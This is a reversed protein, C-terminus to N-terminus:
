KNKPFLRLVVWALATSVVALIYMGSGTALGIAAVVWISAATTIGQVTVGERLIAGAGIFGVGTVIQAAIRSPDTSGAFGLASAVTFIAAGLGILALTRMGAPKGATEREYGIAAGFLTALALRVAVEVQTWASLRFIDAEM